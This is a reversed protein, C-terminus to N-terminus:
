TGLWPAFVAMLILLSLLIAGAMATPHRRFIDHLKGRQPISFSPAAGIEAPAITM